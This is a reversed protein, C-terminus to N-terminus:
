VAHIAVVACAFLLVPDPAVPRPRRRVITVHNRSVRAAAPARIGSASLAFSQDAQQCRLPRGPRSLDGVETLGAMLRKPNNEPRRAAM